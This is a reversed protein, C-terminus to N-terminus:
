AGAATDTRPAGPAVGSRAVHAWAATGLGVIGAVTFALPTGGIDVLWGAVLGGLPAFGIFAFLYLGVARGRLRGPAALQVLATANSTLMTFCVGIAFLLVGALWPLTVPALLLMGVGFGATGLLFARWSARGRTAVVLAGVVAGAGFSASLLGFGEAGVHLRNSALLPLVVNFNFGVTSVIVIVTLVTRLTPSAAVVGFAERVGGLLSTTRDKEAPHLTEADMLLLAALVAVFSAANIAFCVGVGATAIVLGALAPGVVRSSNLLSSNLAVANPLEDPGVMEYTLAQRGPADFVIAVGLLTALVLVVPLSAVGALVVVALATSFVMAAAQTAMVLRRTDFRDVISGAVLGLATYPAFRCFALAGVAIPSSSLEIVFWALAVNQMWSGALSVVQGSFFLRYNRHRRLSTFTRHHLGLVASSV